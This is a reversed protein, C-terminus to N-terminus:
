GSSQEMPQDCRAKLPVRSLAAKRRASKEGGTVRSVPIEEKAKDDMTQGCSVRRRGDDGSRRSDRGAPAQCPM